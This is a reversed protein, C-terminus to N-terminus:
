STWDLCCAVVRYGAVVPVLRDIWDLRGVFILLLAASILSCAVILLILLVGAGALLLVASCVFLLILLIAALVLLGAAVILLGIRSRLLLSASIGQHASVTMRLYMSAAM